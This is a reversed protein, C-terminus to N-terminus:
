IMLSGQRQNSVLHEELTRNVCLGGDYLMPQGLWSLWELHSPTFKTGTVNWSKKFFEDIGEKMM